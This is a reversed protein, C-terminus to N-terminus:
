PFSSRLLLSPSGWGKEEGDEDEYSTEGDARWHYTKKLTKVVIQSRM